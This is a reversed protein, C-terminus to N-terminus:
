QERSEVWYGCSGGIISGIVIGLMGFSSGAMLGGILGAVALAHSAMSSTKSQQIQNDRNVSASEQNLEQSEKPLEKITAFVADEITAFVADETRTQITERSQEPRIDLKSLEGM